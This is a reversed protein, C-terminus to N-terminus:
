PSRSRRAPRVMWTAACAQGGTPSRDPWAQPRRLPARNWAGLSCARPGVTLGRRRCFAKRGGQM